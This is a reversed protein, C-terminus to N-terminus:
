GSEGQRLRRADELWQVLPREDSLFRGSPLRVLPAYGELKNCRAESQDNDAQRPLDMWHEVYRGLELGFFLDYNLPLVLLNTLVMRVAPSDLANRIALVFARRTEGWRRLADMDETQWPKSQAFRRWARRRQSAPMAPFCSGLAEDLAVDTDFTVDPYRRALTSKGMGSLAYILISRDCPPLQYTV